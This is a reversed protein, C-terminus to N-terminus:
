DLGRVYVGDIDPGNSVPERPFPVGTDPNVDLAAPRLGVFRFGEDRIRAAEGDGALDALDFADGGALEGDFPDVAHSEAHLLVPTRGAFGPWDEPRSSYTTEDDAVYDHPFDVFTAGDLSVSVVVLDMFRRESGANGFANEFVVLEAGPGDHATRGGLGLTLSTRDAYDLSYVDTSGMSDGAGRVGNTARAPDGTGEGTAGPAAVIETLARPEVSPACGLGLVIAVALRSV